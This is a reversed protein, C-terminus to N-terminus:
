NQTPTNGWLLFCCGLTYLNCTKTKPASLVNTVSLLCIFNGNIAFLCFIPGGSLFFSIDGALIHCDHLPLIYWFGEKVTIRIGRVNATCIKLRLRTATCLPNSTNQLCMFVFVQKTRPVQDVWQTTHSYFEKFVIWVDWVNGQLLQKTNEPESQWSKTLLTSALNNRMRPWDTEPPMADHHVGVSCTLEQEMTYSKPFNGASRSTPWFWKEAVETLQVDSCPRVHVRMSRVPPTKNRHVDTIGIAPAPKWLRLVLNCTAKVKAAHCILRTVSHWWDDRHNTKKPRPTRQSWPQPCCAFLCASLAFACFGLRWHCESGSQYGTDSVRVPPSELSWPSCCRNQMRTFIPFSASPFISRFIRNFMFLRVRWVSENEGLPVSPLQGSPISHHYKRIVEGTTPTDLFRGASEVTWQNNSCYFNLFDHDSCFM